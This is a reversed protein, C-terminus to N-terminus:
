QKEERIGFDKCGEHHLTGIVTFAQFESFCISEVKRGDPATCTIVYKV